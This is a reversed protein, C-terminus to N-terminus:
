PAAEAPTMGETWSEMQDMFDQPNKVNPLNLNGISISARGQGRLQGLSESYNRGRERAPAQIDAFDPPRMREAARRPGALGGEAANVSAAPSVLRPLNALVPPRMREAAAPAAASVPRLPPHTLDLAGGSLDIELPKRGTLWAWGKAFRDFLGFGGKLADWFSQVAAV